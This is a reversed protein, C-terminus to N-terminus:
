PNEGGSHDCVEGSEPCLVECGIKRALEAATLVAQVEGASCGAAPIAISLCLVPVVGYLRRAFALAFTFVAGVGLAIETRHDPVFVYVCAVSVIATMLLAATPWRVGMKMKTTM